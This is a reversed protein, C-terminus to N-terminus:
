GFAIARPDLPTPNGALRAAGSFSVVAAQGNKHGYYGHAFDNRQDAASEVQKLYRLVEDRNARKVRQKAILRLTGTKNTISM